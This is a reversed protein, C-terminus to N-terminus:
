GTLGQVFRYELPVLIRSPYRPYRPNSNGSYCLRTHSSLPECLHNLIEKINTEELIMNMRLLPLSCVRGSFNTYKSFSKEDEKEFPQM